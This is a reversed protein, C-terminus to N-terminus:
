RPVFSDVYSDQPAEGGDETHLMWGNLTLGDHTEIRVDELHGYNLDFLGASLSDSRSVHYMLDRQFVTMLLLIAVYPFASM